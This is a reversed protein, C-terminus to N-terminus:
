NRLAAKKVFRRSSVEEFSIRRCFILAMAFVVCAELLNKSSVVSEIRLIARPAGARASPVGESGLWGHVALKYLM